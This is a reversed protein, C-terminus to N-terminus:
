LTQVDASPFMVGERSDLNFDTSCFTLTPCAELETGKAMM